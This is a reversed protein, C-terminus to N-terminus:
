SEPSLVSKGRSLRAELRDVLPGAMLAVMATVLAGILTTVFLLAGLIAAAGLGAFLTRLLELM